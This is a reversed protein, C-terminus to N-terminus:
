NAAPERVPRRGARLDDGLETARILGQDLYQLDSGIIVFAAGREVWTRAAADGSSFAGFPIGHRLCAAVIDDIATTVEPHTLHQLHGMSVALDAAGILIGDLGPTSLVEDVHHLTKIHEVMVFVTIEDNARALYAARGGDLRAARRPGFGRGGALPYRAGAVAAGCSAGDTVGPVIVGEAGIDLAQGIAVPDNAITRVLITSPSSRMAIILSQQADVPLPAHETDIMVFDLGASGIMEAVFPDSITLAVGMAPLRQALLRKLHNDRM